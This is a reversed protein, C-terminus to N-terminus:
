VKSGFPFQHKQWMLYSVSVFILMMLAAIAKVFPDGITLHAAVAGLAYFFIGAYTGIKLHLNSVLLLVIAGGIKLTGLFPVLNIPFGVDTINDVVQQALLIDGVGTTVLQLTLFGTIVWYIIRVSKKM